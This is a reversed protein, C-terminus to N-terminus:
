STQIEIRHPKAAEKKPVRVTLIGNSLDARAKTHDFIDPMAFQRFYTTPQFEQYVPTGPITISMPASITLIDGEMNVQLGERTAGPLDATLMLGEDTEVINVAPRLYKQAPAGEERAQLNQGQKTTVDTQAM